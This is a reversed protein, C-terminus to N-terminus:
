STFRAGGTAFLRASVAQRLYIFSSTCFRFLRHRFCKKGGWLYPTNLYMFAISLMDSGSYNRTLPMNVQESPIIFTKGAISLSEKKPNYFLLRSGGTLIINENISEIYGNTIPKNSVPIDEDSLEKWLSESILTVMKQDVWGQYKDHFNEILFFKLSKDLIRFHEGFLLQSCMESQEAAETRMPLVSNLNIGFM